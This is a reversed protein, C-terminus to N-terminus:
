QLSARGWKSAFLSHGWKTLALVALLFWEVRGGGGKGDPGSSAQVNSGSIEMAVDRADNAPNVDNVVSVKVNSMFSGNASARIKLSVSARAFPELTAFDCRLTSTGSCIGESASVDDVTVGAPLTVELRPTLARNAGNTLQIIPFDLATARPGAVAGEVTVALDTTGLTEVRASVSNNASVVDGPTAVSVMPEVIAAGELSRYTVAVSVSADAPLDTFECIGGLPEEVRCQGVSAEIAEVRLGPMAHSAQLRATALGRRDTRVTFSRVRTQEGFMGGLDFSGSVSADLWPRVPVARVLVDNAPATDGPAAASFVVDYTGPEDFEAGYDVYLMAGRSMAPLTCRARNAALVTCDAGHHLSAYVLRGAVPLEIDLTGGSSAQRGTSSVAVQGDLVSDEVGAGGSALSVGLDVLHDIRLQLTAANNALYGDETTGAAATIDGYVPSTAHFRLAVTRAEGPALGTLVCRWARDGAPTCAAGGAELGDVTLMAPLSILLEVDGTAQVGRSRVVYPIEYVSGVPLDLTTDPVSLEVDRAAQIWTSAGANNNTPDGDGDVNIGGSAFLAGPTQGVAQVTVRRTSGSAIESIACVVAAGNVVCQGGPVTADNVPQTFNLTLTSAPLAMARLSSVDAYVEFPMGAGVEADRTSLTLGADIGSRINVQVLRNNNSPLKDNAASARAQATFSFAATSLASVSVTASSGPTLTGVACRASNGSISCVGQSASAATIGLTASAPLTVTLEADTADINGASNLTFPLTFPVGGEGSLSSGGSDLALDAFEAATICSASAVVPAMVDLSCQSFTGNGTVSSNMIFGAPTSACVTGAEADHTAGFNHGLEHAMILASLTTGYNRQSLSVGRDKECVTRVYAIGATTGDLDKGTMLHALGRARVAPTVARYHSLQELLTAPKTSTFPDAGAPMLRIEGALILLGLQESFIGEVINLRALMAATADGGETQQFDSDAILSIELQRTLSPGTVSGAQLGAQLETVLSKYQDLGTANAALGLGGSACFDAPLADRADSLRYVV